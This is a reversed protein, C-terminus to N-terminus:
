GFNVCRLQIEKGVNSGVSRQQSCSMEFYTKLHPNLTIYTIIFIFEQLYKHFTYCKRISASQKAPQDLKVMIACLSDFPPSIPAVSEVTFM